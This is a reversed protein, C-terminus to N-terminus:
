FLRPIKLLTYSVHIFIVCFMYCTEYFNFVTLRIIMKKKQFKLIVILFNNLACPFLIKFIFIYNQGCTRAPTENELCSELVHFYIPFNILIFFVFLLIKLKLNLKLSNFIGIHHLILTLLISLDFHIVIIIWHLTM